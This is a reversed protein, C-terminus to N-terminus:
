HGIALEREFIVFEYDWASVICFCPHFSRCCINAFKDLMHFITALLHPFSIGLQLSWGCPSCAVSGADGM